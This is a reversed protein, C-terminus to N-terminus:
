EALGLAWRIGGLLHAQFMESAWVDERHGLATYFSRGEGYERCWVLPYDGAAEMVDFRGPIVGRQKSIDSKGTDISLLVHVRDRSFAVPGMSEEKTMGFRYFEDALTWESGLMRTAPHDPDEVKLTLPLHSWSHTRFYGGVLEGYEAWEYFTDTASHVGIFAGGSDVFDLLAQKQTADLPLEGTTFFMVGDLTALLEPTLGTLDLVDGAQEHGQWSVIELDAEKESIEAMVAEATPLVPHRFGASHTLFLVRRPEDGQSNAGPNAEGQAATAGPYFLAAIGLAVSMLLTRNM